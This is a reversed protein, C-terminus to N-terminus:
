KKSPNDAYSAIIVELKKRVGNRDNPKASYRTTAFVYGFQPSSVRALRTAFDLSNHLIREFLQSDNM